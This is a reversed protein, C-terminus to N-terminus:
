RNGERAACVAAYFAGLEVKPYEAIRVAEQTWCIARTTGHMALTSSLIRVATPDLKIKGALAQYTM